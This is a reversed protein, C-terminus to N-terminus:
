HAHVVDADERAVLYRHLQRGVIQRASPDDEARLSQRSSLVSMFTSADTLRMQRLQLTILLFPTTRTIQLLSGRWLCRWPYAWLAGTPAEARRSARLRTAGVFHRPLKLNFIFHNRTLITPKGNRAAVLYSPNSIARIPPTLM